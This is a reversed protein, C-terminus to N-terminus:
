RARTRIATSLEQLAASSQAVVKAFADLGLNVGENLIVGIKDDDSEIKMLLEQPTEVLDPLYKVLNLMAGGLIANVAIQSDALTELQREKLPAPQWANIHQLIAPQSDEPLSKILTLASDLACAPSYYTSITQYTAAGARLINEWTQDKLSPLEEDLPSQYRLQYLFQHTLCAAEQQPNLWRLINRFYQKIAEYEATPVRTPPSTSHDYTYFGILASVYPLEEPRTGRLNLNVFHHWTSDVVVRGVNVLHGDYVGISGFCHPNVQNNSPDTTSIAIVEPSLRINTGHIIPYEDTTTFNPITIPQTLDGPELCVGEHMHDPMVDIVGDRYALLPHPYVAGGLGNSYFKPRIVQPVNDQQDDFQIGRNFGPRLTDNRTLGNAPPAQPQGADLWNWLRMSRVRPVRGCLGGGLDEHDGVAFVGGGSQMFEAIVKLEGDSLPTFTQGDRSSGRGFLWLQTYNQRNLPPPAGQVALASFRYNYYDAIPGPRESPNSFSNPGNRHAKYLIPRQGPLHNTLLAKDILESFGNNNESYDLMGDCVMLIRVRCDGVLAQPDFTATASLSAKAQQALRPKKSRRTSIAKSKSSATNPKKLPM